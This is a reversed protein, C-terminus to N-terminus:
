GLDTKLLYRALLYLIHRSSASLISFVGLAPVMHRISLDSENPLYMAGFKLYPALLYLFVVSPQLPPIIPRRSDFPPDFVQDDESDSSFDFFRDTSDETDSLLILPSSADIPSLVPSPSGSSLPSDTPPHANSM